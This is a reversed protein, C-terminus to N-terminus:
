KSLKTTKTYYIQIYILGDIEILAMLFIYIKTLLLSSWNKYKSEKLTPMM